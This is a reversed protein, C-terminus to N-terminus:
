FHKIKGNWLVDLIFGTLAGEDIAVRRVRPTSDFVHFLESSSWAFGPVITVLITTLERPM